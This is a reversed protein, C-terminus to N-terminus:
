SLYSVRISVTQKLGTRIRIGCAILKEVGVAINYSNDFIGVKRRENALWIGQTEEGPQPPLPSYTLVETQGSSM